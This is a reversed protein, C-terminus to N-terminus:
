PSFDSNELLNYSLNPFALIIKGSGTEDRDIEKGKTTRERSMRKPKLHREKGEGRLGEKGM